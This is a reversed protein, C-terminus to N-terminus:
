KDKKMATKEAHRKAFNLKSSFCASENMPIGVGAQAKNM